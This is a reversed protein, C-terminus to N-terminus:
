GLEIGEMREELNKMPFDHKLSKLTLKFTKSVWNWYSGPLATVGAVRLIFIIFCVILMLLPMIFGLLSNRFFSRTILSYRQLPTHHILLRSSWTILLLETEDVASLPPSQLSVALAADRPDCHPFYLFWLPWAKMKVVKVSTSFMIFINWLFILITYSWSM